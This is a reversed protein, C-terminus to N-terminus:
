VVKRRGELTHVAFDHQECFVETYQLGFCIADGHVVDGAATENLVAEKNSTGAPQVENVKGALANEGFSEKQLWKGDGLRCHSEATAHWVAALKEEDLAVAVDAGESKAAPGGLELLAADFDFLTQAQQTVDGLFVVLERGFFGDNVGLESLQAGGNRQQLLKSSIIGKLALDFPEVRAERPVSSTDQNGNLGLPLTAQAGPPITLGCDHTIKTTITDAHHGKAVQLLLAPELVGALCGSRKTPTETSLSQVRSV